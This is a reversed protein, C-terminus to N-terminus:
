EFQAQSFTLEQLKIGSIAKLYLVYIKIVFPRVKPPLILVWLMIIISIFYFLAFFAQELAIYSQGFSSCIRLTHELPGAVNKVFSFLEGGQM